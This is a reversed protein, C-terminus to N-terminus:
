FYFKDFIIWLLLCIYYLNVKAKENLIRVPLNTPRMVMQYPDSM